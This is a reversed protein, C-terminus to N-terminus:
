TAYYTYEPGDAWTDNNITLRLPVRVVDAHETGAELGLAETSPPAFCVLEDTANTTRLRGLPQLAAQSASAFDHASTAGLWYGGDASELHFDFEIALNRAKEFDRLTHVDALTAGRRECYWQADSWSLAGSYPSTETASLSPAYAHACDGAPEILSPM